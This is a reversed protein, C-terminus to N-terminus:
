KRRNLRIYNTISLILAIVFFGGPALILITMPNYFPVVRHGFLTNSGFVERIFSILGLSLTYGVAMVVGDIFCRFLPVKFAITESRTLIICNVAILPIFIGLRTVLGPAFAKMYFHVITVCSAIIMIACISRIRQPMLFRLAAILTNSCVLVVGVAIGLGIGNTFSTTVAVAPCLGLVLVFLPNQTIIGRILENKFFM